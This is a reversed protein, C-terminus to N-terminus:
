ARRSRRSSGSSRRTAHSWRRSSGSTRQRWKPLSRRRMCWLCSQCHLMGLIVEASVEDKVQLLRETSVGAGGSTEVAEKLQRELLEIRRQADDPRAAAVTASSGLLLEDAAVAGYVSLVRPKLKSVVETWVLVLEPNYIQVQRAVRTM